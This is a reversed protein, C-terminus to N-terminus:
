SSGSSPWCCGVTLKGSPDGENVPDDGAYPYRYVAEVVACSM